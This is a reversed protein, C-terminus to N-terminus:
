PINHAVLEGGGGGIGSGQRLNLLHCRCLDFLGIRGVGLFGKRGVNFFLEDLKAKKQPSGKKTPKWPFGFPFIAVLTLNRNQPGMRRPRRAGDLVPSVESAARAEEPLRKAISRAACELM